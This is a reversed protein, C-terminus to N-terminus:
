PDPPRPSIPLLLSVAEPELIKAPTPTRHLLDDPVAEAPVERVQLASPFSAPWPLPPVPSAIAEREREDTHVVRGKGQPAPRMRPVPPPRPPLCGSSTISPRRRPLKTPLARRTCRIRLKRKSKMDVQVMSTFDFLTLKPLEAGEWCVEHSMLTRRSKAADTLLENENERFPRWSGGPRLADGDEWAWDCTTLVKGVVKAAPTDPLGAPVEPLTGSCVSLLTDM